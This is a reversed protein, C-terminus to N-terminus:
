GWGGEPYYHHMITARTDRRKRLAGDSGEQHGTGATMRARLLDVRRCGQVSQVRSAAGSYVPLSQSRLLRKSHHPPARGEPMASCQEGRLPGNRGRCAAEGPTCCRAAEGRM